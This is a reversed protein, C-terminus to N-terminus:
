QTITIKYTTQVVIGGEEYKVTIDYEGAGKNMAPMFGSTYKIALDVTKTTGDSYKCVFTGGTVDLAEGRKYATKPLTGMEISELVPDGVPEEKIQIIFTDTFGKYTVTIVQEEVAVSSDFGTITCEDLNLKTFLGGYTVSYVSLGTADFPMGCYYTLRDPFSAIQIEKVEANQQATKDVDSSSQMGVVIIVAIIAAIVIAVIGGIIWWRKNSGAGRSMGKNFKKYNSYKPKKYRM